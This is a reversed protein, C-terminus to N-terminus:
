RTRRLPNKLSHRVHGAPSPSMNPSLGNFLMQVSADVARAPSSFIRQAGVRNRCGIRSSKSLMLAYLPAGCSGDREMAVSVVGTGLEVDQRRLSNLESNRLGTQVAVILLTHDRRGIWTRPNPAAVLAATENELLFEVLGRDYRKAPIALVRQCQLAFSPENHSV